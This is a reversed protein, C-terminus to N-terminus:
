QLKDKRFALLCYAIIRYGVGLFFLILIANWYSVDFNVYNIRSAKYLTQNGAFATYTYNFPIIFRIWGIWNPLNSYNKFFGSFSVFPLFFLTIYRDISRPDKVMAGILMGLSTGTFTEIVIILYMTFFQQATNALGVMWYSILLFILPIFLIYPIEIINRSTFYQNLTYM